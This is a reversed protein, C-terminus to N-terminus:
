RGGRRRDRSERSGALASAAEGRFGPDPASLADDVAALLQELLEAPAIWARATGAAAEAVAAQAAPAEVAGVAVV